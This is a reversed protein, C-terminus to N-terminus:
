DHRPSQASAAARDCAAAKQEHGLSRYIEAATRFQESAMKAHGLAQHMAGADDHVAAARWQDGLNQHIALAEDLPELAADARGDAALGRAREHLAQALSVQDGLQRSLAVAEQSYELSVAIEGLGRLAGARSQLLNAYQAEWGPQRLLGAAEDLAALAETYRGIECCAWALNAHAFARLEPQDLQTAATIVKSFQEAASAWREAEADVLGLINAVRAAGASDELERRLAVAENLCSAAEDLRHRQRALKGRSEAMSAIAERDTSECAARYGIDNARSWEDFANTTAFLDLLGAPLRWAIPGGLRAAAALAEPIGAREREFWALAGAQDSFEASEREAGADSDAYPAPPLGTGGLVRGAALGRGLYWRLLRRLADQEGTGAEDRLRGLAFVRLLDHLRFREEGVREVLHLGELTRLHTAAVGRDVGALAAAADLAFHPGTYCGLARYFAASEPSLALYLEDFVARVTEQRSEDPSALEDLLKGPDTMQEVLERVTTHPQAVRDAALRLALPHDGCYEALRALDHDVNVSAIDAGSLASRLLMTAHRRDLMGVELRIVGDRVLGPLEGRSTTVVLAGPGPPPLLERVQAASAANDLVILMDRGAIASRYRTLREEPDAPVETSAVGLSRLFRAAVEHAELAIGPGFGRLDACLRGDAFADPHGQAWRSVSATKGVGALGVLLVLKATGARTSALAEDLAAFLGERDVFVAPPRALERPVPMASGASEYVPGTYVRQGGYVDRGVQVLNQSRGTAINAARIGRGGGHGRGRAGAGVDAEQAEVM